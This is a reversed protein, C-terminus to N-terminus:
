VHYERAEFCIIFLSIINIIIFMFLIYVKDHFWGFLFRSGNAMETVTGKEINVNFM